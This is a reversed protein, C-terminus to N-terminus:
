YQAGMAPPQPMVPPQGPAGGPPMGPAPSTPMGPAPTGGAAGGMPPMQGPMQPAAPFAGAGPQPVPPVPPEPPMMQQRAQPMRTSPPPNQIAMLANTIADRGGMGAPQGQPSGYQPMM